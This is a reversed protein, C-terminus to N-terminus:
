KLLSHPSLEGNLREVANRLDDGGCWVEDIFAQRVALCTPPPKKNLTIEPIEIYGDRISEIV